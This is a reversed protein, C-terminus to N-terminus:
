LLEDLEDHTTAAEIAAVKPAIADQAAAVAAPDYNSPDRMQEQVVQQFSFSANSVMGAKRDAVTIDYADWIIQVPDTSLDFRHATYGQRHATITPRVEVANRWGNNGVGDAPVTDWVQKVEGNVVQVYHTM